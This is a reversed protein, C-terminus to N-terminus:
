ERFYRQRQAPTLFASWANAVNNNYAMMSEMAWRYLKMNERAANLAGIALHNSTDYVKLAQATIEDFQRRYQDAYPTYTWSPFTTNTSTVNGSGAWNRQAAFVKDIFQKTLQLYEEQLDSIAEAYKPQFKSVEETVKLVGQKYSDFTEQAEVTEIVEEAEKRTEEDPALKAVIEAAKLAEEEKDNKDDSKKNPNKSSM